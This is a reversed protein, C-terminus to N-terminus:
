AGKIMEHIYELCDNFGTTEATCIKDGCSHVSKDIGAIRVLLAAAKWITRADKVSIDELVLSADREEGDLHHEKLVTKVEDIDM